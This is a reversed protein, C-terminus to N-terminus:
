IPERYPDTGYRKTEVPPTQSAPTPQAQRPPPTEVPPPVPKPEKEHTEILHEIYQQANEPKLKKIQELDALVDEKNLTHDNYLPSSSPSKKQITFNGAKEIPAISPTPTQSPPTPMQPKTAPTGRPTEALVSATQARAAARADAEERMEEIKRISSRIGDLVERNVDEALARAENESVELERVLNPIYDESSSLALMVLLTETQLSANQDIRLNHKNSISNFKEGLNTNRIADRMEQPLSNLQKKIIDQINSEM